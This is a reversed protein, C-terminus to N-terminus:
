VNEPTLLWVCFITNNTYLVYIGWIYMLYIAEKKMDWSHQPSANAGYTQDSSTHSMYIFCFCGKFISKLIVATSNSKGNSIHRNGCLSDRNYNPQVSSSWWLAVFFSANIPAQLSLCETTLFPCAPIKFLSFRFFLRILLFSFWLFM